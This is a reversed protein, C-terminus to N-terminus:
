CILNIQSVPLIPFIDRYGNLYDSLRQSGVLAKVWFEVLVQRLPVM